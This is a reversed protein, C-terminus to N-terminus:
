APQTSLPRYAYADPRRNTDDGFWVRFEDTPQGLPIAALADAFAQPSTHNTEISGMHWPNGNALYQWTAKVGGGANGLREVV